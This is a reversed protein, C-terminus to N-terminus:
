VATATRHPALRSFYARPPVGFHRRFMTAFAGPSNYGLSLAVDVVKEGSSLRELAQILRAQQRWQGFTLGTERLFRRQLTKAHLGLRQAWDGLTLSNEPTDAIKRCIKLLAADVPYPLRLPLGTLAAIEDLLLHMLHEDRSGSVYPLKIEVAAMILERLLPSVGVVKCQDPLEIGADARFYLTRLHVEGVARMRHATGAPLWLGRTPPVVWEATDTSVLMVGQAAYLFQSTPHAHRRSIVGSALNAARGVVPLHGLDKKHNPTAPSHVLNIKDM